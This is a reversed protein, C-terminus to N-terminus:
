STSDAREEALLDAATVPLDIWDDAADLEALWGAIAEPSTDDDPNVIEIAPKGDVDAARRVV